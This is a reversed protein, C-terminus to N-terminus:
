FPFWGEFLALIALVVLIVVIGFLLWTTRDM